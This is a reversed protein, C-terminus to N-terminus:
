RWIAQFLTTRGANSEKRLGQVSSSGCLRYWPSNPQAFMLSILLSSIDARRPAQRLAPARRTHLPGRGLPLLRPHRRLRLRLHLRRRRLLHHPRPQLRTWRRPSSRLPGSRYRRLDSRFPIMLMLLGSWRSVVRSLFSRCPLRCGGNLCCWDAQCVSFRPTIRGYYGSGLGEPINNEDAQRSFAAPLRFERPRRNPSVGGRRVRMHPVKDDHHLGGEKLM